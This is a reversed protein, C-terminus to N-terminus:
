ALFYLMNFTIKVQINPSLPDSSFDKIKNENYDCKEQFFLFDEYFFLILEYHLALIIPCYAMNISELYVESILPYLAFNLLPM